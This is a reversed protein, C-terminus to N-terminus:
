KSNILTKLEAIQSKLEDIESQQEKIKKALCIASGLAVGQYNLGLIGDENAKVSNPCVTQWYQASTGIQVNKSEDNKYTYDFFPADAINDVTFCTDESIIDKINIDSATTINSTSTISNTTENITIGTNGAEIVIKSKSTALSKLLISSTGNNMVFDKDTDSGDYYLCTYLGDDFLITPRNQSNNLTIKGSMFSINPRLADWSITHNGLFGFDKSVM